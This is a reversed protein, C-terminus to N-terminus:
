RHSIVPSCHAGCRARSSGRTGGWSARAVGQVTRSAATPAPVGRAARPLWARAWVVAVGLGRRVVALGAWAVRSTARRASGTAPPRVSSRPPRPAVPGTPALFTGGTLAGALARRPRRTVNHWSDDGSRPAAPRCTANNGPRVGRRVGAKAGRGRIAEGNAAPCLRGGAVRCGQLDLTEPQRQTVSLNPPASRGKKAM